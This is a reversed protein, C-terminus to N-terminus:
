ASLGAATFGCAVVYFSLAFFAFLAFVEKGHKGRRECREPNKIRTTARRRMTGEAPSGMM